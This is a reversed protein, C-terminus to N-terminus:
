HPQHKISRTEGPETFLDFGEFEPPRLAPDDPMLEPVHIGTSHGPKLRTKLVEPGYTSNFFWYPPLALDIHRADWHGGDRAFHVDNPDADGMHLVTIDGDLTVRFVLNEVDLRENPWGAHPIRVAEIQLGDMEMAVPADKYQLWISNVRTFVHSDQEKAVKRLGAVAQQPAYLRIRPQSKLLQLMDEPSFHDGHYHSIFVADIGDFPPTGDILAQKMNKPVLTYHGYSNRFLPDFLIKTEGHVIMVGENALYHAIAEQAQSVPVISGLLSLFVPIFFQNKM